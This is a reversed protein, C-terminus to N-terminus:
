KNIFSCIKDMADRAEPIPFGIWIHQMDEYEHYDITGGGKLVKEKLKNADISLIDNTSTFIAIEGIDAFNGYLPSCLYNETNLKGAYKKGIIKLTDEDLILDKAALDKPIKSGMSVDLWPSLLVIKSPKPNINDRKIKQALSLALGGGASDGMLIIEKDESGYLDLYADLAMYIADRCTHEPTLPYDIFSIKCDVRKLINNIIRWHLMNPQLTYAGGHFYFIHKEPDQTSRFSFCDRNSINLKEPNFHRLLIEPPLLYKNSRRPNLMMKSVMRKFRTFGISKEIIKARKSIM